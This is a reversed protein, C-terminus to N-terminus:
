ENLIAEISRTMVTRAIRWGASRGCRTRRIFKRGRNGSFLFVRCYLSTRLSNCLSGSLLNTCAEKIEELFSLKERFESFRINSKVSLVGTHSRLGESGGEM